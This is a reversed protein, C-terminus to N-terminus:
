FVGKIKVKREFYGRTTSLRLTIEEGIYKIDNICSVRWVTSGDEKVEFFDADIVVCNDLAIVEMRNITNKVSPSTTYYEFGGVYIFDNGMIVNEDIPTEAINENWAINNEMDDKSTAFVQSIVCEKIGPRSFDDIHSIEFVSNNTIMIRQGIGINKTYQNDTLSIRRKGDPNSMYVKDAMGDSYLTLNVLSTPFYYKVGFIEAHYDFNCKKVTFTKHSQVSNREQHYLIWWIGDWYVQDGLQINMDWKFNFYKEDNTKQDNKSTDTINININVGETDIGVNEREVYKVTHVTASLKEDVLSNFTERAELIEDTENEDSKCNYRRRLLHMYDENKM